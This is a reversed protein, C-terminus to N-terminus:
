RVFQLIPIWLHYKRLYQHRQSQHFPIQNWYGPSDKRLLRVLRPIPRPHNSTSRYSNLPWGMEARDSQSVYFRSYNELQLGLPVLVRLKPAEEPAYGLPVEEPACGM